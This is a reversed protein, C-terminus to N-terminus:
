DLRQLVSPMGLAAKVPNTRKRLTRLHGRTRGRCNKNKSLILTKHAADAVAHFLDLTTAM